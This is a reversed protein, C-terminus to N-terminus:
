QQCNELVFFGLDVTCESSPDLADSFDQCMVSAWVKGADIALHTNLGEPKVSFTCASSRYLVGGSADDAVDLAGSIGTEDKGITTTLQIQTAVLLPAGNMDVAPSKLQASV